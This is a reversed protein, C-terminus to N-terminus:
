NKDPERKTLRRLVLIDGTFSNTWALLDDGQPNEKIFGNKQSMYEQAEEVTAFDKFPMYRENTEPYFLGFM